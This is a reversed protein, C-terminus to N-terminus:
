PTEKQSYHLDNAKYSTDPELGLQVLTIEKGKREKKKKKQGQEFDIGVHIVHIVYYTRQNLIKTIEKEYTLGYPQTLM